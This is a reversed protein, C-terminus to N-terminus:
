TEYGIVSNQILSTNCEITKACVLPDLSKNTMRCTQPKIKGSREQKRRSKGAEPCAGALDHALGDHCKSGKQRFFLM